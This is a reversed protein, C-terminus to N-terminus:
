NPINNQEINQFYLDKKKIHFQNKHIQNWSNKKVKKIEKQFKRGWRTYKFSQSLIGLDLRRSTVITFHSTSSYKRPVIKM